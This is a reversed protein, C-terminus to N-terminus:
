GLTNDSPTDKHQNSASAQSHCGGCNLAADCEAATPLGGAANTHDLLCSTWRQNCAHRLKYHSVAEGINTVIVTVAQGPVASLPLMDYGDMWGPVLFAHGEKFLLINVGKTTKSDQFPGIWQALTSHSTPKVDTCPLQPSNLEDTRHQWLWFAGNLLRIM